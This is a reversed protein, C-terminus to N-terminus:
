VNVTGKKNEATQDESFLGLFNQFCVSHIYLSVISLFYFPFTSELPLTPTVIHFAVMATMFGLYM